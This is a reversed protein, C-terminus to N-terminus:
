KPPEQWNAGAWRKQEYQLLWSSLSLPLRPQAGPQAALTADTTPGAAFVFCPLAWPPGLWLLQTHFCLLGGARPLQRLSHFAVEPSAADEELRSVSVWLVHSM